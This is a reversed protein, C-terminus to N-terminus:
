VYGYGQKIIKARKNVDEDNKEEVRFFKLSGQGPKWSAKNIDNKCAIRYGKNLWFFMHDNTDYCWERRNDVM